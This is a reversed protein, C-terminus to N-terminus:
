AWHIEGAVHQQGQEGCTFVTSRGPAIDQGGFVLRAGVFAPALNRFEFKLARKGPHADRWADFMLTAMLPGHVVLAPYGEVATVYPQDYHIRHTNFTVASYRFLLTESPICEVRWDTPPLAVPAPSPAAPPNSAAASGTSNSARTSSVTPAAERYVATQLEDIACTEGHMWRNRSVVFGLTGSKGTKIQVSEITIQLEAEVDVPLDALWTVTSGAWMRRPLPWTPILPGRPAHGDESLTHTPWAPPAFIWMWHRLPDLPRGAVPMARNLTAEHLGVQSSHLMIRRRDSKGVWSSWDTASLVDSM